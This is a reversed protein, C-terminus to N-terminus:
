KCAIRWFLISSLTKVAANQQSSILSHCARKFRSTNFFLYGSRSKCFLLIVHLLNDKLMTKTNIKFVVLSLIHKTKKDGICDDTMQISDSRTMM